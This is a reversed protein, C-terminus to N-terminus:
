QPLTKNTAVARALMDLLAARDAPFGLDAWQRRLADLLRRVEPGPPVGLAIVDRGTVPFRQRAVLRGEGLARALPEPGLKRTAADLLLRDAARDAEDQAVLARRLAAPDATASLAPDPTPAALAVLRDRDARSLRLRASAAAAVAPDAPLLAALRPVARGADGLGVARELAVLRALRATATAAPVLHAMVAHDVMVQWTAAPAPAGTLLRTLESALRQGSLGELGPALARCAALAAPDGAGEGFRAHFRFYRLIRLYDESIRTEPDGVFRVVGACLDALGGFYDYLRRDAPACSMANITFDRRAADAQWDDTFAVVAHRGDTALDCRLTTIEYRRGDALGTVTGHALGTPIAKIGAEALAALVGKPPLPTALDIDDVPRGVLADRVSGGVFRVPAGAAALAPMVSTTMWPARPLKM